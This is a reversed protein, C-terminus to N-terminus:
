SVPVVPAGGNALHGRNGHSVVALRGHHGRGTRNRGRPPSWSLFAAVAAQDVSGHVLQSGVLRDGHPTAPDVAVLLALQGQYGEDVCLVGSFARVVWPQYAAALDIGAGYSRCWHRVMAESPRVWVARALRAAVRRMALGDDDVAQVANAVVRNTSSANPRLFPPHARFYHRCRPCHHVSVTVLLLVPQELDVDIATRTAADIRPAGGGCRDGPLAPRTWDIERLHCRVHHITQTSTLTSLSCPSTSRV